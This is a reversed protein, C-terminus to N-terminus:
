PIPLGRDSGAPRIGPVVILPAPGLSDRLLAVDTPACVVGDAGAQMALRALRPVADSPVGLAQIKAAADKAEATRQAVKEEAKSTGKNGAM